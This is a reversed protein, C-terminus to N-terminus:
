KVIIEDVFLWGKTPKRVVWEPLRGANVARVRVYRARQNRGDVTLTATRPKSHGAAPEPSFKGLVRFERGDDSVVVEVERPLMVGVRTSELVNVGVSHLQTPSGLDLTALLDHGFFGLWEPGTHDAIAMRGDSLAAGGGGPYRPDPLDALVVSRGVAIHEVKRSRPLKIQDEPLMLARTKEWRKAITSTRTLDWLNADLERMALVTPIWAQTWGVEISWAGWGSDANSGWYDWRRFDFARFWGGDLEPHAESQVQIRILFEALRDAMQGYQPEGTAAHAEHLGLFAFNCTYLLDAVPDGNQQILSAERTGYEANSQPPRYGGLSLEGLEERIAGCADQCKLMDDAMRKLWARHEPRDDVRVLWALTLLMRGREQQIGNTWNWRNPYAEMMMRIATRTRELLPPYRTKDYL